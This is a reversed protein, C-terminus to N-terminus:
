IIIIFAKHVYQLIFLRKQNAVLAAMRQPGLRETVGDPAIMFYLPDFLERRGEETYGFPTRTHGHHSFIVTVTDPFAVMDIFFNSLKAHMNTIQKGNTEHGTNVHLYSLLPKAKEDIKLATYIKTIYDYM